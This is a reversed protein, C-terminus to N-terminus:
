GATRLRLTRIRYGPWISSEKTMRCDFLGSEHISATRKATSSSTALAAAAFLSAVLVLRGGRDGTSECVAGHFRPSAPWPTLYCCDSDNPGIIPVLLRTGGDTPTADARPFPTFVKGCADRWQDTLVPEHDVARGWGALFDMLSRVYSPRNHDLLRLSLQLDSVLDSVSGQASCPPTSPSGM